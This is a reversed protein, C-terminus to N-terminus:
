QNDISKVWEIVQEEIHNIVHDFVMEVKEGYDELDNLEDIIRMDTTTYNFTSFESKYMIKISLKYHGYGSPLKNYSIPTIERLQGNEVEILYHKM